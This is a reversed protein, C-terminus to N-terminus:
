PWRGCTPSKQNPYYRVNDKVRQKQRGKCRKVMKTYSVVVSTPPNELKKEYVKNAHTVGM